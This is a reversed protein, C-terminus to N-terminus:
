EAVPIAGPELKLLMWLYMNIVTAATEALQKRSFHEAFAADFTPFGPFTM